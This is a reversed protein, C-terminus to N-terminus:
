LLNLMAIMVLLASLAWCWLLINVITLISAIAWFWALSHTQVEEREKWAFFNANYYNHPLFMILFYMTQFFTGAVPILGMWFLKASAGADHMRRIFLCINPIIIAISFIGFLLGFISTSTADDIGDLIALIIWNVITPTWYEMRSSLSHVDVYRRWFDLYADVLENM